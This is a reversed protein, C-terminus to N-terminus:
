VTIDFDVVLFPKTLNAYLFHKNELLKTLWFNYVNNNKKPWMSRM